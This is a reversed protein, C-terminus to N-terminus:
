DAKEQMRAPGGNGTKRCPSLERRHRRSKSARFSGKACPGARATSGALAAQSSAGDPVFRTRSRIVDTLIVPGTDKWGRLLYPEPLLPNHAGRGVRTLAPRYKVVPEPGVRWHGLRSMDFSFESQPGAQAKRGDILASRIVPFSGQKETTEGRPRHGIKNQSCWNPVLGPSCGPPAKEEDAKTISNAM